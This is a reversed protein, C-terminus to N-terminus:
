LDLQFAHDKPIVEQIEFVNGDPDRGYTAKIDGFDQPETHFQIGAEVMKRYVSDIDKVDICVHTLGHNCVPTNPAKPAPEPYNFEFLEICINPGRLMAQKASCDELGLVKNIVGTGRPWSAEAVEEFGLLDRYFTKLREMNPTSFAVHHLGRIM